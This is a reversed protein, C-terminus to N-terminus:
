RIASVFVTTKGTDNEFVETSTVLARSTDASLVIRIQIRSNERVLDDANLDFSIMKGPQITETPFAELVNGEADLFTVDTITIAARGTNAATLRATQGFTIGVPRYDIIIAQAQTAVLTVFALILVSPTSLKM